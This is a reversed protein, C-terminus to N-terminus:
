PSRAPDTMLPVGFEGLVRSVPAPIEATMRTPTTAPPKPHALSFLSILGTVLAVLGIGVVAHTSKM